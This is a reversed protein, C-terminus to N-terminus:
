AGWWVPIANTTTGINILGVGPTITGGGGGGTANITQGSISLNSGLVLAGTAGGVSVVGANSITGAATIGGGPNVTIGLGATINTVTGPTFGLAATVDGSSLTVTGARTNFSVVGTNSLIGSALGLGAGLSVVNAAGVTGTAGLLEATTGAPINANPVFASELYANQQTSQLGLAVRMAQVWAVVTASSYLPPIGGATPFGTM